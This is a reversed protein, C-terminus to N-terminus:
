LTAKLELTRCSLNRVVKEGRDMIKYVEITDRRLGLASAGRHERGEVTGEKILRQRVKKWCLLANGKHENDLGLVCLCLTKNEMAVGKTQLGPNTSVKQTVTHSQQNGWVLHRCEGM